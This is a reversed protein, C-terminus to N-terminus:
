AEIDEKFEYTYTFSPYTNLYVFYGDGINRFVLSDGASLRHDGDNDYFTVNASENDALDTLREEFIVYWDENLLYVEVNETDFGSGSTETVNLTYTGDSNKTMKGELFGYESSCGTNEAMELIILYLSFYVILWIVIVTIVKLPIGFVIKM